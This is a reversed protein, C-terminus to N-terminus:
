MIVVNSKVKEEKEKCNMELGQLELSTAFNINGFLCISKKGDVIDEIVEIYNNFINMLNKLINPANDYKVLIEDNKDTINKEGSFYLILDVLCQVAYFGEEDEWGDDYDVQAGPVNECPVLLDKKYLDIIDSVLLNNKM